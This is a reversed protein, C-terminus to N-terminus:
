NLAKLKVSDITVASTGANGLNFDLLSNADMPLGRFEYSYETWETTANVDVRGYSQWNNDQNGNHGINVVFSRNSDAKARFTLVYDVAQSLNVPTRAQVHWMDYGANYISVRLQRGTYSATSWAGQHNLLTWNAGSANGSLTTNNVNDFSCNAVLNAPERCSDLLSVKEHLVAGLLPKTSDNSYARWGLSLDDGVLALQDDGPYGFGVANRNAYFEGKLGATKKWELTSSATNRSYITTTLDPDGGSVALTDGSLSLHNIPQAVPELYYEGTLREASNIRYFALLHTTTGGAVVLNTDNM